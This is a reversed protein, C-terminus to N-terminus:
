PAICLVPLILCFYFFIHKLSLCLADVMDDHGFYAYLGYYFHLVCVMFVFTCALMEGMLVILFM